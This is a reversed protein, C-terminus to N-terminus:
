QEILAHVYSYKPVGGSLWSYCFAHLGPVGTDAVQDGQNPDAPIGTIGLGKNIATCVEESLYDVSFNADAASTGVGSMSWVNISPNDMCLQVADVGNSVNAPLGPVTAGGGEPAFVCDVGSTCAPWTAIPSCSVGGTHFQLNSIQTGTVIMRDVLARMSAAAQTIQAAAILAQERTVSGSGRGSQTVAYSLAAFLAVAILILFLANGEQSKNIRINM